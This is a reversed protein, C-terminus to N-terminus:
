EAAVLVQEDAVVAAGYACAARIGAETLTPYSQLLDQISAGLGLERLVLEVPIRTGKICPKGMMVKPNVSVADRFNDM